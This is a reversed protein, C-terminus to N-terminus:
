LSSLRPWSLLGRPFGLPVMTTTIAPLLYVFL